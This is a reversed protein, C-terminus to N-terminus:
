DFNILTSNLVSGTSEQIFCGTRLFHIGQRAASGSLLLGFHSAHVVVHDKMENLMTETVAVTGDNPRVVGPAIMGLGLRLNGAISGLEHDSNWVPVKGLLGNVISKGFLVRFPPVHILSQAASSPQHPTGLTVVRGPRQDPFEHFLHRVVLGGLSHCLFHIVPAELTLIFANLDMANELPRSRVSRYTFRRTEYGAKELRHRLLSMDMGNMWLGHVLVVIEDSM